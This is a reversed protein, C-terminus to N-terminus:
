LQYRHMRGEDMACVIGCTEEWISIKRALAQSVRDDENDFRSAEIFAEGQKQFSEQRHDPRNSERNPRNVDTTNQNNNGWGNAPKGAKGDDKGKGKGKPSRTRLRNDSTHTTVWPCQDGRSCSGKRQWQQCVGKQSVVDPTSQRDPQRQLFFKGKRKQM